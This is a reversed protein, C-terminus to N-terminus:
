LSVETFAREASTTTGIWNFKLTSERITVILTDTGRELEIGGNMAIYGKDTAVKEIADILALDNASDTWDIAAGDLTVTSTTEGDTVNVASVDGDTSTDITASIYDAKTATDDCCIGNGETLKLANTASANPNIPKGLM